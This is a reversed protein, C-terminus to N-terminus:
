QNMQETSTKICKSGALCWALATETLASALVVPNALFTM